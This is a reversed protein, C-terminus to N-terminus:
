KNGQPNQNLLRLAEESLADPGVRLLAAEEPGTNLVVRSPVSGGGENGGWRRPRAPAGFNRNQQPADSPYEKGM